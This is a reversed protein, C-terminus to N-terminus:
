GLAAIPSIEVSHQPSGTTVTRWNQPLRQPQSITMVCVTHTLMGTSYPASACAPSGPTIQRFDPQQTQRLQADAPRNDPPPYRGRVIINYVDTIYINSHIEKCFGFRM